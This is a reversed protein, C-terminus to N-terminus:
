PTYWIPSTWAREQVTKPIDLYNEICCSAQLDPRMEPTGCEIGQASMQALQVACFSRHAATGDCCQALGQEQPEGAACAAGVHGFTDACFRQNWRCTPNELVRAYYFAKQHADFDPDEWVTCLSEFGAGEPECTDADVSAGNEADGAVEYVAEQAAGNEDLWGKVIQVQQLPSADPDQDVSVFFRPSRGGWRRKPLDGGMPVGRRNAVRVPDFRKCLLRGYNWSGFFRVIPRTGSTGYVEKRQIADFLADRTNEEAWVVALGGGHAEIGTGNRISLTLQPSFDNIGQQGTTAFTKESTQGPTSSHADTSGLMGLKFPNVGLAEEQVLGEKLGERVFSLRPAPVNPIPNDLIGIRDYSEHDCLEDSGLLPLGNDGRMSRRCESAGKVQTIEVVPEISARAEADEATLPRDVFFPPEPVPEATYVPKFMRGSSFNSNHPITLADCDPDGDICNERLQEWLLEVRPAEFYSSPLPPVSDNRFIVNRHLNAGAPADPFITNATWEYANFATFTCPDNALNTADQSEQWVLSARSLCSANGPGCVPARQPVPSVLPAAFQLFVGLTVPDPPATTVDQNGFAVTRYNVCFPSDFAPDGPVTCLNFEGFFEAHDSVATFDLPRELQTTRPLGSGAPGTPALEIPDGKAFDYADSPETSVGLLVADFSFGTHVHLDGFYPNRLRDYDPCRDRHGGGTAWAATGPLSLVLVAIAAIGLRQNM